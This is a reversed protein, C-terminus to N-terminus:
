GPWDLWAEVGALAGSGADALQEMLWLHREHHEGLGHVLLIQRANERGLTRGSINLGDTTIVNFSTTM